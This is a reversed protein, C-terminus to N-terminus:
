LQKGQESIYSAYQSHSTSIINERLVKGSPFGYPCSARAGLIFVTKNQIM